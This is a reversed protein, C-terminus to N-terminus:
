REFSGVCEFHSTHPVMNLVGVEKLEFYHLRNLVAADRAFTIPNCSVYVVKKVSKLNMESLM